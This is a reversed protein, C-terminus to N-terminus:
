YKEEDFNETLLSLTNTSTILSAGIRHDIFYIV